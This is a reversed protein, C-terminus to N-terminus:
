DCARTVLGTIAVPTAGDGVTGWCQVSGDALRACSYHKGASLAVANSIGAVATFQGQDLGAGESQSQSTCQVTGDSLLVCTHFQGGVVAVAGSEVLTVGPDMSAGLGGLQKNWDQGWCQVQGGDFVACLHDQGPGVYVAEGPLTAPAVPMAHTSAGDVTGHMGGNNEGWCYLGGADTVMCCGHYYCAVQTPTEGSVSYEGTFSASGWCTVSGGVIACAHELGGSVMSAGTVQPTTSIGNHRGCHVAGTDLLVCAEETFGKATVQAVGTVETGDTYTLVVPSESSFCVAKGDQTTACPITTGSGNNLGACAASSSTPNGASGGTGASAGAGASGSTGGTGAGGSGSDSGGTALSGGSGSSGGTASGGSSGGSGSTTGGSGNQGSDDAESCGMAFLFLM